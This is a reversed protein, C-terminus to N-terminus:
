MTFTFWVQRPNVIFLVNDSRIESMFTTKSKRKNREREGKKFIM